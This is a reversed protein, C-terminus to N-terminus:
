NIYWMEEILVANKILVWHSVRQICVVNIYYYNKNTSCGWITGCAEKRSWTNYTSYSDYMMVSTKLQVFAVCPSASQIKMQTSHKTCVMMLLHKLMQSSQFISNEEHNAQSILWNFRVIIKNEIGKHIQHTHWIHVSIAYSTLLQM